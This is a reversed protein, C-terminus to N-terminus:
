CWSWVDAGSFYRGAYLVLQDTTQTSDLAHYACVDIQQSTISILESGQSDCKEAAQVFNLSTDTLGYWATNDLGFACSTWSIDNSNPPDCPPSKLNALGPAQNPEAALAIQVIVIAKLMHLMTAGM